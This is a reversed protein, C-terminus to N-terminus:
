PLIDFLILFIICRGSSSEPVGSHTGTAPKENVDYHQVEPEIFPTSSTATRSTLKRSPTKSSM